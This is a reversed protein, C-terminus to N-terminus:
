NRIVYKEKRLIVTKLFLTTTKILVDAFESILKNDGAICWMDKLSKM